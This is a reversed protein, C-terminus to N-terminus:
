VGSVHTDKGEDDGNAYVALELKYGDQKSYFSQSLWKDNVRKHENFNFMPITCPPLLHPSQTESPIYWSPAVADIM